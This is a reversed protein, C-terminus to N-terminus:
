CILAVECWPRKAKMKELSKSSDESHFGTLPTNPTEKKALLAARPPYGIGFEEVKM